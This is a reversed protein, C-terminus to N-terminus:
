CPCGPSSPASKLTDNAGTVLMLDPEASVSESCDSPRNTARMRHSRTEGREVHKDAGALCFCTSGESESQQLVPDSPYTAHRPVILYDFHIIVVILTWM